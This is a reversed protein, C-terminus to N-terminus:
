KGHRANYVNTGAIQAAQNVLDRYAPDNMNKRAQYIGLATGLTVLLITAGVAAKRKWDSTKIKKAQTEFETGMFHNYIQTAQSKDFGYTSMLNIFLESVEDSAKNLNIRNVVREKYRERNLKVGRPVVMYIEKKNPQTDTPGMVGIYGPKVAYATTNKGVKLIESFLTSHRVQEILHRAIMELDGESFKIRKGYGSEGGMLCIWVNDATPRDFFVINDRTKGETTIEELQKM